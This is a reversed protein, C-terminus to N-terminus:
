PRGPWWCPATMAPMCRPFGMGPFGASRVPRWFPTHSEQLRSWSFLPSSICAHLHPTYRSDLIALLRTAAGRLGTEEFLEREAGQAPDGRSGGYRGAIGM